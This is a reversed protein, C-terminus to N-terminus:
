KLCMQYQVQKLFMQYQVQKLLHSQKRWSKSALQISKCTFPGCICNTSKGSYMLLQGDMMTFHDSIVMIKQRYIVM